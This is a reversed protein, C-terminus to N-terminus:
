GWTATAYLAPIARRSGWDTAMTMIIDRGAASQRTRGALRYHYLKVISMNIATM